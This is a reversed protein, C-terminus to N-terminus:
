PKHKRNWKLNIKPEVGRGQKHLFARKLGDRDDVKGGVKFLLGGVTVAGVRELKV